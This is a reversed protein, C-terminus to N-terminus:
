KTRVAELQAAPILLRQLHLQEDVWLDVRAIETSVVLHRLPHHRGAFNVDESGVDRVNLIGPTAEQPIYANFSQQKEPKLAFRDVLLQYHHVVNDDVILVDKPLVFERKDDAKANSLRLRSQAPSKRFDVELHFEPTGKQNVVYTQPEWQQNLVLRPASKLDLTQSSQLVKIEIEAEAEIKNASSHIKFRETGIPHGNFSISYTGQDDPAPAAPNPAPNQAAEMNGVFAFLMVVATLIRAQVDPGRVM